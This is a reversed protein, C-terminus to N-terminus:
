FMYNRLGAGGRLLGCYVHGWMEAGSRQVESRVVLLAHLAARAAWLGAAGSRGHLSTAGVNRCWSRKATATLFRLARKSACGVFRSHRQLSADTRRARPARTRRPLRLADRLTLSSTTGFSLCWKKQSTFEGDPLM